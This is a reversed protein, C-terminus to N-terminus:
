SHQKFRRLALGMIGLAFIAITSPEPVSTLTSNLEISLFSESNMDLGGVAVEIYDDGFSVRSASFGSINAFNVDISTIINSQGVWDMNWIRYYQLPTGTDYEVSSLWDFLVTSDSVDLNLFDESFEIGAGVVASQQGVPNGEWYRAFDLEDSILGANAFGSLSLVLGVFSVKIFKFDM